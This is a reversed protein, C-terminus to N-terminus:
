PIAELCVVTIGRLLQRQGSHSRKALVVLLGKHGTGSGEEHVDLAGSAEGDGGDEGVGLGDNDALAAGSDEALGGTTLCSQGLAARESPLLHRADPKREKRSNVVILFRNPQHCMPYRCPMSEVHANLKCSARGGKNQTNRTSSPVDM